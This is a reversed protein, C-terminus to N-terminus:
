GEDCSGIGLIVKVIGVVDLISILGDQNCDAARCQYGEMDACSDELIINVAIILDLVNIEGDGNVDGKRGVYKKFVDGNPGTGAYLYGDRALLLAQVTRAGPLYGTSHWSVGGDSSRYVVSDPGAEFGAYISGDPAPSVVRVKVAHVDGVMISGTTDWAIGRNDSKLVYGGHDHFWSGAYLLSDVGETIWYIGQSKAEAFPFGTSCPEWYSGGDTSKWPYGGAAAYLTSDRGQFLHHVVHYIPYLLDFNDGGDSSVFIGGRAGAFIRGDYTELFATVKQTQPSDSKTWSNGDDTSKFIAGEPYTGVLIDGSSTVFLSQAILAGPLTDLPEWSDGGDISRYVLGHVSNYLTSITAAYLSSDPDEALAYVLWAGPLEGTKEWDTPPRLILEPLPFSDLYAVWVEENGGSVLDGEGGTFFRKGDYSLCPSCANHSSNIPPPMPVPVSWEGADTSTCVWVDANGWGGPRPGKFDSFYLTKGDPTLFPCVENAPTNVPEGLNWVTDWESNTRSAVWIDSNGYGGPRRSVFYLFKGDYSIAPDAEAFPTNVPYLLTEAETWEFGNWISRWIDGGRSFYLTDGDPTVCPRREEQGTNINPGLNEGPGWEGKISDWESVYIDYSGYHGHVRDRPPGIQDDVAIFYLKKGDATIWPNCEPNYNNCEVGILQSWPSDSFVPWPNCVQSQDSKEIKAGHECAQLSIACGTILFAM